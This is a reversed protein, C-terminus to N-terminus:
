YKSYFWKILLNSNEYYVKYLGERLGDRYFCEYGLNINVIFVNLLYIVVNM